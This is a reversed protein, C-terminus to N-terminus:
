VAMASTQIEALVGVLLQLEDPSFLGDPGRPSIDTFPSEYLVGADLTGHETLHDIVLNVFEIENATHNAGTLFTGLARKAAERDLGVLMRVFLALGNGETKVKAIEEPSGGCQALLLELEQLDGPSLREGWRLRRMTSNDTHQRLFARAKQRFKEFDGGATGFGPLVITTETGILDEFDTFVPKRHAKEIFQVLDRLKKRVGELM